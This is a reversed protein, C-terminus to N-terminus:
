ATVQEAAAVQQSSNRPAPPNLGLVKGVTPFDRRRIGLRKDGVPEAPIEGSMVARYLRDYSSRGTWKDAFMERLVHPMGVMDDNLIM